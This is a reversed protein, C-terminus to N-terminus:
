LLLKGMIRDRTARGKTHFDIPMSRNDGVVYYENSSCLVPAMEWDCPFKIYPEDLPKGNIYATGDHFAVTEGPLGIIRKMFMVHKGALRVSVIDGRRPEHFLYALTNICNFRGNHHTPEMSIGDIQIPLLIYSFTIFCVVVLVAIRALTARPRRGILVVRLWHPRSPQDTASSVKTNFRFGASLQSCFLTFRSAIRVAYFGTV